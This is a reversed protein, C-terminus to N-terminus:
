GVCNRAGESFPIYAFRNVKSINEPLFRTPNFQNADSGWYKIKRHIRSVGIVISTGPGIEYKGLKITGNKVKKSMLSVIPFLRLSEKICLELYPLQHIHEPCILTDKSPLVTKLEEFVREQHQPHMALLLVTYAIAASSTDTGQISVFDSVYPKQWCIRLCRVAIFTNIAEGKVDM